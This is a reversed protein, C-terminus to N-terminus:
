MIWRRSHLCKDIREQLFSLYLDREGHFHLSSGIQVVVEIVNEKDFLFGKVKSLIM